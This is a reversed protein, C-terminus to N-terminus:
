RKEIASTYRKGAEKLNENPVVNGFVADFFIQRDRESALIREHEAIITQAYDKVVRIVFSSFSRDRTLKQVRKFLAKDEASLRIEIREDKPTLDKMPISSKCHVTFICFLETCVLRGEPAQTVHAKVARHKPQQAASRISM